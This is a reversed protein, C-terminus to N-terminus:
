SWRDLDELTDIDAANGPCPVERVLDTREAMVVRAGADGGIPLLPWVSHDLRVPNGRVGDYTAVAIPADTSRVARWADSTVLPQDGLGVVIADHGADRARSVAAQLSTAQGEAWRPNHLVVAGAPLAGALDVAGAVVLTEDLAAELAASVAWWVVPRGRFPALLKPATGEFRSGAGAALVVSAVTV